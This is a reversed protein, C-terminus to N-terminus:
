VIGMARAIARGRREDVLLLGARRVMTLAIAEAEGHDLSERLAQVQNRDEPADVILWPLSFLTTPEPFDGLSNKLEEYAATPILVKGFLTPLLDLRGIRALNLIPSADAM